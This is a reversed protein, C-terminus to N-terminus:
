CTELNLYKEQVMLLLVWKQYFAITLKNDEEIGM